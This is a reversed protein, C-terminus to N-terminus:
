NIKVIQAMSVLLVLAHTLDKDPTSVLEATKVRSTIPVTTSTKTASYVVGAKTVFASGLNTVLVM